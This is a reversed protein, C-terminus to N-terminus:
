RHHLFGRLNYLEIFRQFRLEEFYLPILRILFLNAITMRERLYLLYILQSVRGFNHPLGIFSCVTRLNM